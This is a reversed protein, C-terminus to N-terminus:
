KITVAVVAPDIAVVGFRETPDVQVRLNYRGAGLGALDVFAQISDSQLPALVDQAGRVSLQVFRPALQATMGPAANRYRVPVDALQREAPAAWIDVTVQVVQPQV